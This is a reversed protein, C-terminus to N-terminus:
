PSVIGKKIAFQVLAASSKLKLEEMMRYKHYAVTRTTIKLIEAAEKMTHGEALLQLVERQRPTLRADVRRSKGGSFSSAVMGRAALPTVYPKGNVVDRIAQFLESAVCRKLLFGSAGMRFAEAVLDPDESVTLYVLKVNPLMRKIQAGADLGNLLPMAIDLVIVDPRLKQAAELLARGDLVSGVVECAPELLKQFAELLLQHDDALLVRPRIM